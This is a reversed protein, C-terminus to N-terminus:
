QPKQGTLAQLAQRAPAYDPRLRLTENFELAAEQSKGQEALARGLNFHATASQPQLRV